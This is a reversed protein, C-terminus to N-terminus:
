DKLKSFPLSINIPWDKSQCQITMWDIYPGDLEKQFDSCNNGSYNFSVTPTTINDDLLVHVKEINISNIAFSGDYIKWAFYIKLQNKNDSSISGCGLIFDGTIKSNNELSQTMVHLEHQGGFVENMTEAMSYTSLCMCLLCLVIKKM